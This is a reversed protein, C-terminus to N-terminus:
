DEEDDEEEDNIQEQDDEFDENDSDSVEGKFDKAKTQCFAKKDLLTIIFAVVQDIHKQIGAPGM